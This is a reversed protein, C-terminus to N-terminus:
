PPFHVEMRHRSELELGLYMGSKSSSRSFISSRITKNMGKERSQVCPIGRERRGALTRISSDFGPRSHSGQPSNEHKVPNSDEEQTLKGQANVVLSLLQCLPRM